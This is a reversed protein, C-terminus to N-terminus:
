CGLVSSYRMVQLVIRQFVFSEFDASQFGFSELESRDFLFTEREFSM